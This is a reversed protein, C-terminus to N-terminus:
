WWINSVIFGKKCEPCQVSENFDTCGFTGDFAKISLYGEENLKPFDNGDFINIYEDCHPCDVTIQIEIQADAKKM